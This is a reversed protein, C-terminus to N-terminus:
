RKFHISSITLPQNVGLPLESKFYLWVIRSFSMESAAWFGKQM